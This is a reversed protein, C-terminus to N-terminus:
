VSKVSSPSPQLLGPLNGDFSASAVHSEHLTVRMASISRADPGLDGRAIAAALRNFIEQALVETTTNRGTFAPEDDLNRYSLADLIEGLTWDRGRLRLHKGAFNARLWDPKFKTYAPWTAAADSHIVPKRPDRYEAIFRDLPMGSVREIAAPSDAAIKGTEEIGM